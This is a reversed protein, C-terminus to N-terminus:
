IVRGLNKMLLDASVNIAQMEETSGGHDPHAKMALSKKGLSIIRAMRELKRADEEEQRKEWRRAGDHDQERRERRKAQDAELDADSYEEETYEEEMEAKQAKQAKWHANSWARVQKNLLKKRLKDRREIEQPLSELWESDPRTEWEDLLRPLRVVGRRLEAIISQSDDGLFDDLSFFKGGESKVAAAKVANFYVDMLALQLGSVSKWWEESYNAPSHDPETVPEPHSLPVGDNEPEADAANADSPKTDPAPQDELLKAAQERARFEWKRVTAPNIGLGKYFEHLSGTMRGDAFRAKIEQLAPLMRERLERQAQRSLLELASFSETVVAGLDADSLAKFDLAAPAVIEAPAFQAVIEAAPATSTQATQAELQALRRRSVPPRYYKNLPSNETVSVTPQHFVDTKTM